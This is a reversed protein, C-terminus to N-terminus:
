RHFTHSQPVPAQIDIDIRVQSRRAYSDGMSILLGDLISMFETPRLASVRSGNSNEPIAQFWLCSDEVPFSYFVFREPARLLNMLTGGETVPRTSLVLQFPRQSLLVLLEENTSGFWSNCGRRELRRALHWWARQSDGIILANM